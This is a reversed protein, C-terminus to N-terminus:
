LRTFNIRDANTQKRSPQNLVDLGSALQVLLGLLGKNLDFGSSIFDDCNAFLNM